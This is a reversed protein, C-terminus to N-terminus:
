GKSSEILREVKALAKQITTDNPAQQLALQFNMKAGKLNGEKLAKEGLTFFKRANANRIHVSQARPVKPVAAPNKLRITEVSRKLKLQEDYIRKQDPNHLVQYAETIRKFVAYVQRLFEKHSVKNFRDPHFKRAFQYYTKKVQSPQVNQEVGLVQYYDLKDLQEFMNTIFRLREEGIIAFEEETLPVSGLKGSLDAPLKAPKPAPRPSSASSDIKPSSQMRRPASTSRSARASTVNLSQKDAPDAATPRSVSKQEFLEALKKKLTGSFVPWPVLADAGLRELAGKPVESPKLQSSMLVVVLDKGMPSSKLARCFEVKRRSDTDGNLIFADSKIALAEKAEDLSPVVHWVYDTEQAMTEEFFSRRVIDNEVVVIRKSM